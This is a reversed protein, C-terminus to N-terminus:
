EHSNERVSQVYTNWFDRKKKPEEDDSRKKKFEYEPFGFDADRKKFDDYFGFDADRKKFDDYFGFDADRKKFDDYFGFDADKKEVSSEIDDHYPTSSVTAVLAFLCLTNVLTVKM